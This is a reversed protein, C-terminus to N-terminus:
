THLLFGQDTQRLTRRRSTLLVDLRCKTRRRRRYPRAATGRPFRGGSGFDRQSRSGNAGTSAKDDAYARIRARQIQVFFQPAEFCFNFSTRMERHRLRNEIRLM